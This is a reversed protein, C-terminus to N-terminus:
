LAKIRNQAAPHRTRPAPLPRSLRRSLRRRWQSTLCTRRYQTGPKGRAKTHSPTPGPSADQSIDNSGNSCPSSPTQPRCVDKPLRKPSARHHSASLRPWVKSPRPFFFLQVIGPKKFNRSASSILM